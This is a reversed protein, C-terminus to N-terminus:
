VSVNDALPDSVAASIKSVPDAVVAEVAAIDAVVVVTVDVVTFKSPAIAVV